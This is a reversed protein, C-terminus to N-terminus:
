FVNRNREANAPKEDFRNFCITIIAPYIRRTEAEGLHVPALGGRGILALRHRNRHHLVENRVSVDASRTRVWYILDM